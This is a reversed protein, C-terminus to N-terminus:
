FKYSVSVRFNRPAEAQWYYASLWSYYSGSYLYDNLLNYVNANIRLKNNEWFLGGDVKIYDPLRELGASWTDTARDALYTLGASIGTGKLPGRTLNYSIWGNATHKSFGPVMDGVKITTVGPAVETVKSDTYAYNAMIKLGETITGRVDFEIGQARKEGLVISLGSNPPSNPDATLENQKLIRYVSLSTNWNGGFWDKKLGAEMNNGTIPRVAGGGALQGSQPIFAQDYMAYVSATKGLSYSLGARPTFHRGQQDAGGWASQKVWTYRGALTLRLRNAFFGLEDQVYVAAYRQDMLGGAAKARESLPTQRDFNAFGNSPLGYYPNNLSFPATPLDLDHSQGWDAEYDKRGADLGGLIRHQIGGTLATGTVFLQGLTMKSAADWIAMNRILTGDSNVKSPWTSTGVQKYNFYSGQATLKWAEGLGQELMLYVSHDNIRTPQIGSVSMTFSAPQTAYGGPGFVYFSGVESMKAHQLTYEATIKTSRSAQYSLVPAFSYRNNFESGRFSKKNQGALNIRYLLKGNATAKGDLDVATRFMDYSGLTVTAEGKAQGTPKKTVVNYLGSPDGTALMFGAPGKVFEIRDVFSMDETLPGWYSAVVNFGNRFAQIQSGRMTINTYLDGWHEVRVAGSVNRIVGDSMSVVQQQSLDASNVVQINQAVELLPAQLRLSSSPETATSKRRGAVNVDDLFRKDEQLTFDLTRTEGDKFTVTQEQTNLGVASVRVTYSGTKIRNLLYRGNADTSTANGKGKLSVTVGPALHGDATSVTGKLTGQQAQVSVAACIIAALNLLYKM